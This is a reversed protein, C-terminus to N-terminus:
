KFLIDFLSQILSVLLPSTAVLVGKMQGFPNKLFDYWKANEAPAAQKAWIDVESFRMKAPIYVLLLIITYLGGYLYIFDGRAPSYGWDDALLKIFDLSNIISFLAGTCLVMLSLIIAALLFYTQFTKALKNFIVEQDKQEVEKADLLLQEPTSVQANVSSSINVPQSKQVVLRQADVEKRIKVLPKAFYSLMSATYIFGALCFTGSVSGLGIVWNMSINLSKMFFLDKVIDEDYFSRNWILAMFGM